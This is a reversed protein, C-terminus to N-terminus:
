YQIMSNTSYTSYINGPNGSTFTSDPAEAFFAARFRANYCNDVVGKTALVLAIGALIFSLTAMFALLGLMYVSLAMISAAVVAGLGVTIGVLGASIYLALKAKSVSKATPRPKAPKALLPTTENAAPESAPASSNNAQALVPQPLKASPVPARVVEPQHEPSNAKEAEALKVPQKPAEPEQPAPSSPNAAGEKLTAAITDSLDAYKHNVFALILLNRSEDAIKGKSILNIKALNDEVYEAFQNELRFAPVPQGNLNVLHQTHIYNLTNIIFHQLDETLYATNRAEVTLKARLTKWANQPANSPPSAPQALVEASSSKVPQVPEAQPQPQIPQSIAQAFFEPEAVGFKAITFLEILKQANTSIVELTTLNETLPRVTELNAQIYTAFQEESDIVKQLKGERDITNLTIANQYARHLFVARVPASFSSLDNIRSVFEQSLIPSSSSSGNGTSHGMKNYRKNYKQQM